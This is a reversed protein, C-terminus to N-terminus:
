CQMWRIAVAMGVEECVHWRLCKERAAMAEFVLITAIPTMLARQELCQGANDASRLDTAVMQIAARPSPWSPGTRMILVYRLWRYSQSLIRADQIAGPILAYSM